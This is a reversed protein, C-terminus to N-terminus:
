KRRNPVYLSTTMEVWYPHGTNYNINWAITVEYITHVKPGKFGNIIRWVITGMYAEMPLFRVNMPLFMLSLSDLILPICM